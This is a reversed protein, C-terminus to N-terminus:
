TKVGKKIVDIIICINSNVVLITDYNKQPTYTRNGLVKSGM